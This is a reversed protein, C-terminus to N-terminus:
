VDRDERQPLKIPKLHQAMQQLADSVQQMQAIVAQCREAMAQQGEAQLAAHYKELEAIHEDNHERWHPVLVNLKNMVPVNLM